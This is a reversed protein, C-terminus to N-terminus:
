LRIQAPVPPYLGIMRRATRLSDVGRDIEDFLAEIREVIRRQENLPPVPIRLEDFLTPRVRTLSGGIGSANAALFNKVRSDSLLIALFRSDIGQPNPFVVWETSAIQAIGQKDQVVWTRNLRPNIRSILVDGPSVHQKNSGIDSASVVEPRGTAHSPISWLEYQEDTAANPNFTASRRRRFDGAIAYSWGLPLPSAQDFPFDTM